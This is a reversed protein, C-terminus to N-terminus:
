KDESESKAESFSQILFELEKLSFPGLTAGHETLVLFQNGSTVYLRLTGIAVFNGPNLITVGGQTYPNTNYPHNNLSTNANGGSSPWVQQDLAQNLQQGLTSAKIVAM